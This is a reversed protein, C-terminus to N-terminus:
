LMRVNFIPDRSDMYQGIYRLIFVSRDEGVGISMTYFSHTYFIHCKLLYFKM